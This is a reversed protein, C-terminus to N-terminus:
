GNPWWRCNRYLFISPFQFNMWFIEKKKINQQIYLTAWNKPNYFIKISIFDDSLWNFHELVFSNLKRTNIYVFISVISSMLFISYFWITAGFVFFFLYFFFFSENNVNEVQWACKIIYSHFANRYNCRENMDHLAKLAMWEALNCM